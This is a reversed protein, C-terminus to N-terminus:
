MEACVEALQDLTMAWGEDASQVAAEIEPTMEYFKQSIRVRTKAGEEELIVETTYRDVPGSAFEGTWLLRAPPDVVVYTGQFPIDPGEPPRMALRHMGGVRVDMELVILTFPRPAFWKAFQEPRTWAEYVRARPADILRSVNVEHKPKEIKSM